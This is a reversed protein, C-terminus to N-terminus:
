RKKHLINDLWGWKYLRAHEKTDNIKPKLRTLRASYKRTSLTKNGLQQLHKNPGFAITTGYM